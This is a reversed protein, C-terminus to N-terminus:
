PTIGEDWDYTEPGDEGDCQEAVWVAYGDRTLYRVAQDLVWTKHHAGDIGGYQGIVELALQISEADNEPIRREFIGWPSFDSEAAGRVWEALTWGQGDATRVWKAPDTVFDLSLGPRQDAIAAAADLMADHTGLVDAAANRTRWHHLDYVTKM